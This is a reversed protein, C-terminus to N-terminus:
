PMSPRSRSPSGTTVLMWWGILTSRRISSSAALPRDRSDLRRQYPNTRICPRTARRHPGIMVPECDEASSMRRSKLTGASRTCTTGSPTSVRSNWGRSAGRTGPRIRATALASEGTLPTPVSSRATLLSTVSRSTCRITTPRGAGPPGVSFSTASSARPSFTRKTVPMLSVSSASSAALASIATTGDSYSPNESGATSCIADPVGSTALRVPASGSTVPSAARSTAGPSSCSSAAASRRSCSVGASRSRSDAAASSRTACRNAQGATAAAVTACYRWAIATRLAM